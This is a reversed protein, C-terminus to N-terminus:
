GVLRALREKAWTKRDCVLQRVARHVRRVESGDLFWRPFLGLIAESVVLDMVLHVRAVPSKNHAHHPFSFDGYWLEGPKWRTRRGALVFEVDRHTVIPVHLRVVGTDITSAPDYHEFIRAGPDLTLVRVAHKETGFSDVVERLYPAVELARTPLYPEDGCTLMDYRGGQAWLSVGGWLGSRVSEEFYTRPFEGLAELDRVLRKEDFSRPLRIMTELM